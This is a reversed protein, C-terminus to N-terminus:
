GGYQKGTAIEYIGRRLRTLETELREITEAQREVTKKASELQEELPITEWDEVHGVNGNLPYM